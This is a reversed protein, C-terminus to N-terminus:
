KPAQTAGSALIRVSYMAAASSYAAFQPRFGISRRKQSHPTGSGLAMRRQVFHM